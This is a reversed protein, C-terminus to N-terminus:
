RCTRYLMSPDGDTVQGDTYPGATWYIADQDASVIVPYPDDDDLEGRQEVLRPASPPELLGRFLAGEYAASYVEKGVVIFKPRYGPLQFLERGEGGSKAMLM